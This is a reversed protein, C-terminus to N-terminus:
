SRLIYAYTQALEMQTLEHGCGMYGCAGGCGYKDIMEKVAEKTLEVVVPFKQEVFKESEEPRWGDDMVTDM